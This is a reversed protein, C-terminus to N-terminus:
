YADSVNCWGTVTNSGSDVAASSSLQVTLVDAAACTVTTQFGTQGAAGTYVTSGNQKVVAVVQSATGGSAVAGSIQMQGNVFFAGAYPITALSFTQLGNLSQNATFNAM